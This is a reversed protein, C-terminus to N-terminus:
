NVPSPNFTLALSFCNCALFRHLKRNKCGLLIPYLISISLHNPNNFLLFEVGVANLFQTMRLSSVYCSVKYFHTSSYVDDKCYGYFRKKQTCKKVKTIM